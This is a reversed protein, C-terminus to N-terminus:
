MKMNYLLFVNDPMILRLANSINSVKQKKVSIDKKSLVSMPTGTALRLM